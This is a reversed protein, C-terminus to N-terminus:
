PYTSRQIRRILSDYVEAKDNQDGRNEFWKGILLLMAQRAAAPVSTAIDTGSVYTVTVADWRDYPVPWVQGYSLTIRGQTLDVGYVSTSLTQQTNTSDYYTISSVSAIPKRSLWFDERFGDYVQRWTGTMFQQNCDAEVQERAAQILLELHDDHATENTPLEVQKKAQALTIPESTAPTVLTLTYDLRKGM